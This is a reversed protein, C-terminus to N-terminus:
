SPLLAAASDPCNDYSRLVITHQEEGADSIALLRRCGRPACAAVSALTKDRQQVGQRTGRGENPRTPCSAASVGPECPRELAERDLTLRPDITPRRGM